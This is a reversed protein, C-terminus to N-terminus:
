IGVVSLIISYVFQNGILFSAKTISAIMFPLLPILGMLLFALFTATAAKTPHKDQNKILENKSKISFYNSIAISFGDAFINAFGLILIVASSLSAGIVGSVVSFTTITGDMGGYVFDPLYKREFRQKRKRLIAKEVRKNIIRAGPM